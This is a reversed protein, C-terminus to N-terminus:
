TTIITSPSASLWDTELHFSSLVFVFQIHLIQRWPCLLSFCAWDSERGALCSKSSELQWLRGLPHWCVIWSVTYVALTLAIDLGQSGFYSPLIKMLFCSLIQSKEHVRALTLASIGECTKWWLPGSVKIFKMGCQKLGTISECVWETRVCFCVLTSLMIAYCVPSLLSFSVYAHIWHRWSPSCSHIWAEKCM